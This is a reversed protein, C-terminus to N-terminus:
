LSQSKQTNNSKYLKCLKKRLLRFYWQENKQFIWTIIQNNKHHFGFVILHLIAPITIGFLTGAVTQATLHISKLSSAVLIDRIYNEYILFYFVFFCFM